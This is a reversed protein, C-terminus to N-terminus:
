GVKKINIVKAFVPAKDIIQQKYKGKIAKAYLETMQQSRHGYLNRLADISVDSLIKDDAGKHKLSYMKCNIGLGEIVYKKWWRTPTNPHYPKVGPKFNNSSFLYHEGPLTWIERRVLINFLTDTIPIIREKNTKAVEPRIIIGRDQLDIDKVQLLLAEKRRVGDDYIFMLYEFYEYCSVVLSEAIKDKEEDTIRTYGITSEEPENKIGAAPNYKIIDEDRIVSLLSKLITLYKNRAKNSWKNMEKAQSIIARIDKKDIDVIECGGLGTYQAAKGMFRVCGDYDYMSYKSLHQRKKDAAYKLSAEFTMGSVNTDSAVPYRTIGPDWGDRMADWLAAAVGEAMVRRKNEPQSNIGRKYRMPKVRGNRHYMFFVEYEKKGPNILRVVPKTARFGNFLYAM